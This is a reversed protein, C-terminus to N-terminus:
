TPDETLDFFAKVGKVFFMIDESERVKTKAFVLDVAGYATFISEILPISYSVPAEDNSRDTLFKKTLSVEIRNTEKNVEFSVFNDYNISEEEYLSKIYEISFTTSILNISDSIFNSIGNKFDTETSSHRKLICNYYEPAVTEPFTEKLWAVKEETSGNTPFANFIDCPNDALQEETTTAM